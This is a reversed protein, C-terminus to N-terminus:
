QSMREVRYTWNCHDYHLRAGFPHDIPPLYEVVMQSLLAGIAAQETPSVSTSDVRFEHEPRRFILDAAIRYSSLLVKSDFQASMAIAISLPVEFLYIVDFEGLKETNTLASADSGFFFDDPLDVVECLPNLTHLFAFGRKLEPDELAPSDLVCSVFSAGALVLNKMAELSTQNIGIFLFRSNRLRRQTEFGWARIQRDYRDVEAISMRQDARRPMNAHEPVRAIGVNCINYFM